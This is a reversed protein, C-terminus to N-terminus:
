SKMVTFPPFYKWFHTNQVNIIHIYSKKNNELVTFTKPITIKIYITYTTHCWTIQYTTVTIKYCTSGGDDHYFPAM